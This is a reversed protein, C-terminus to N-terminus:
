GFASGRVEPSHMRPATGEPGHASLAEIVDQDVASPVELSDELRVDSVVDLLSGMPSQAQSHWGAVSWWPDPPSDWRQDFSPVHEATQNV